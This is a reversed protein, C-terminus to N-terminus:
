VDKFLRDGKALDEYAERLKEGLLGYCTGTILAGTPDHRFWEHSIIQMMRGYGIHKMTRVLSLFIREDHNPEM